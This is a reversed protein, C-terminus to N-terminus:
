QAEEKVGDAVVATFCSIVNESVDFRGQKATCDAQLATVKDNIEKALKDVRVQLQLLQTQLQWYESELKKVELKEEVAIQDIEQGAEQAPLICVALLGVLLFRM